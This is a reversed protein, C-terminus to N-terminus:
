HRVIKMEDLLYGAGAYEDIVWLVYRIDVMINRCIEPSYYIDSMTSEWSRDFNIGILEGKGNLAPSGSNGGTTHNSGTFCVVLDGNSGYRGFEKKELKAKLKEGVVFDYQGTRYKDLIGSATTYYRYEMGDHPASGEAKGFSIRLTSNADNWYNSSPMVEQKAAVYKGMWYELESAFKRTEPSVKTTFVSFLKGSIAFAPDKEVKKIQKPHFGRILAILATSDRFVSKDYIKKVADDMGKSIYPQLVEPGLDAQVFEAYMGTMRIFLQKEVSLDFDKYFLRVNEILQSRAEELKGSSALKDYNAMFDHINSAKAFVEPGYFVYEIFGERALNYKEYDAYLKKLEPLIRSHTEHSSVKRDFEEEEKRKVGVADFKTLGMDQGIWKKYANSIDSQKSAYQIRLKDSSRMAADIIGLSTERMRIKMKNAKNVTYDVAYSTLFHETRGPFGYVMTFDGEKVGSLSVPFFHGPKYPKNAASYEAPDNNEDAYIRFVSFDGTHRPWVWNDTDGGFKGIEGPPAGVLRVDRFTRTVILFYQNGYNFARVLGSLNKGEQKVEEEIKKRNALKVADAEQASMEKKVGELMLTTVDTLRVVFTASLGKCVLEENRNKAWFGNKLYDNELSSHFQIFDYGCHHNTFMLGEGSVMEATCGGGFLVVADKLSGENVSYLDEPSLQLGLAKMEDHVSGLVAPVFMGEHAKGLFPMIFFLSGILAGTWNINM